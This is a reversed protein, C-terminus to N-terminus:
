PSVLINTLLPYPKLHYMDVYPNRKRYCDAKWQSIESYKSGAYLNSSINHKTYMISQYQFTPFDHSIDREILHM